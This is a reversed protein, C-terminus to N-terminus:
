KHLSQQLLKTKHEIDLTIADVSITAGSIADVNKGIILDTKGTYDKFQKLWSTATIEQGHSTQCNFVKILRVTGAADYLIFYDFYEGGNDSEENRRISCGGARCTKVRGIFVYKILPLSSSNTLTYYKGSLISQAIGSSISLEKMDAENGNLKKLESALSKPYFDISAQSRLCANIVLLFTLATIIRLM